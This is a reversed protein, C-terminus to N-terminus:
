VYVHGLKELLDVSVIRTEDGETLVPQSSLM